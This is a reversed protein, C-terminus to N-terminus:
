EVADLMMLVEEDNWVYPVQFNLQFEEIEKGTVYNENLAYLLLLVELNQKWFIRFASSAFAPLVYGPLYITSIDDELLDLFIAEVSIVNYLLPFSRVFRVLAKM